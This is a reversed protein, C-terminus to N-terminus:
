ESVSLPSDRLSDDEQQQIDKQYELFAVTWIAESFVFLVGSIYSLLVLVGFTTGITLILGIQESFFFAFLGTVSGFIVPLALIVLINLIVRMEVLLFLTLLKCTQIFNQLVTKASEILAGTLTKQQLMVAQDSYLMLFLGLIGVGSLFVFLPLTIPDLGSAHRSFFSFETFFSIPDCLHKLAAIELLVFFSLLAPRFGSSLDGETKARAIKCTIVARSLFPTFFWGLFIIILSVIALIM